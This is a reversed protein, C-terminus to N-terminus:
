LDDEYIIPLSNLASKLQYEYIGRKVTEGNKPNIIMYRVYNDSDGDFDEEVIYGRNKPTKKKKKKEEDMTYGSDLREKLRELKREKEEQFDDWGFLTAMQEMLIWVDVLETVVEKETSRGRDYKALANLMEGTEEMVMMVQPRVGWDTLARKYLEKREDENM